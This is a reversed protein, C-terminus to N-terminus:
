RSSSQSQQKVSGSRREASAAGAHSQPHTKTKRNLQKKHIANKILRVIRWKKGRASKHPIETMDPDPLSTGRPEAASRKEERRAAIDPRVSTRVTKFGVVNSKTQAPSGRRIFSRRGFETLAFLAEKGDRQRKILGASALIALIRSLNADVLGLKDAIRARPVPANSRSLEELLEVVHKRQLIKDVPQADAFRVSQATLAAFAAIREAAGDAGESRSLAEAQKFVEHWDELDPGFDRTTLRTWVVSQIAAAIRPFPDNERKILNRFCGLAESPSLDGTAIRDLDLAISM